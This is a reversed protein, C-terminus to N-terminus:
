SFGSGGCGGHGQMPQAGGSGGSVIGSFSSLIKETQDGKCKPCPPTNLSASSVLEEFVLNCQRCRYEYM